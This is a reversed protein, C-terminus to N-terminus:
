HNIIKTTYIKLSPYKNGIIELINNTCAICVIKVTDININNDIILYDLLQIISFNDLLKEIIIIKQKKIINTISNQIYEKIKSNFITHIVHVKPIITKINTITSGYEEINALFLYSEKPYFICIEKTYKLHKVYINQIKIYRRLVEYILFLNLQSYTHTHICNDKSTSYIIETSLKNIIPHSILYINLQM